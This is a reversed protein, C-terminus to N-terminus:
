SYSCFIKICVIILLLISTNTMLFELVEGGTGKIFQKEIEQAIFTPMGQTSADKKTLASPVYFIKNLFEKLPNPTYIDKHYPTCDLNDKSTSLFKLFAKEFGAFYLAAIRKNILQWRIYYHILFWLIFYVLFTIINAILIPDDVFYLIKRVWEPPWLTETVISGFLSIQVLFGANSMAEKHNHYTEWLNIRTQLYSLIEKRNCM